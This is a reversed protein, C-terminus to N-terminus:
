SRSRRKRRLHQTALLTLGAWFGPAHTASATSSVRCACGADTRAASGADVTAHGPGADRTHHTAGEHGAGGHTAGSDAASADEIAADAAHTGADIRRPHGAAADPKDTDAGADDDSPKPPFACEPLDPTPATQVCEGSEPDCQKPMCTTSRCQVSSSPSCRGGVCRDGLTCADGDDCPTGRPSICRGTVPNCATCPDGTDPCDVAVGANCPGAACRDAQVCKTISASDNDHMSDGDYTTSLSADFTTGDALGTPLAGLFVVSRSGAAAISQFWCTVTDGVRPGCGQTTTLGRGVYPHPEIDHPFTITILVHRATGPGNNMVGFGFGAGDMNNGFIDDPYVLQARASLDAVESPPMPVIATASDNASNADNASTAVAAVSTLLTPSPALDDIMFYLKIPVAGQSALAPVSCSVTGATAGMDPGVCAVGAADSYAGYFAMGQPIPNTLTAEAADPGLNTLTVDFALATDYAGEAPGVNQVQLDADQARALAPATAALGIIWFTISTRAGM